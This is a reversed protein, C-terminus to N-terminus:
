KDPTLKDVVSKLEKKIFQMQIVAREFMREDEPLAVEFAVAMAAVACDVSNLIANREAFTLPVLRTTEDTPGGLRATIEEDTM